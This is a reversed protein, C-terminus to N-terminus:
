LGGIAFINYFFVLIVFSDRLLGIASFLASVIDRLPKIKNITRLPRLIRLSRLASLNLVTLGIVLPLYGSLVITFDIINWIDKLYAKKDMVFGMAFIKLLM